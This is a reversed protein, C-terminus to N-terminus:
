GIQRPFGNGGTQRGKDQVSIVGAQGNKRNAPISRVVLVLRALLATDPIFKQM